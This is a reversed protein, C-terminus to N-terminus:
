INECLSKEVCKQALKDFIADLRKQIQGFTVQRNSTVVGHDPAVHLDGKIMPHKVYPLEQLREAKAQEHLIEEAIRNSLMSAMDKQASFKILSGEKASPKKLPSAREFGYLRENQAGFTTAKGQTEIFSDLVRKREPSYIGKKENAQNEELDEVVSKVSSAIAEKQSRM